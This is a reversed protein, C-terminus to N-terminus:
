TAETGKGRGQVAAEIAAVTEAAIEEAQASDGEAMAQRILEKAQLRTERIQYLAETYAAAEALISDAAQRPTRGNIAWAAVSRPVEGQYDAAAFAEAEAAAREYEVARLPDGAVTRRAADAATDIRACLAGASPQLAPPVVLIPLGEADHSRVMGPQPNAIVALYRDEPIPVAGAPIQHVGQLYTNGTEQSYFRQM